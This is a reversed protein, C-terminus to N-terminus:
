SLLPDMWPLLDLMYRHMEETSLKISQGHGTLIHNFDYQALRTMSTIQEPWSYWCARRFAKLRKHQRDWCLHDGTFLIQNYLLVCHGKTHGPVPIIQFDKGISVTEVGKLVHDVEIREVLDDQHLIIEAGFREKYKDADAVDDKHTLFITKVGGMEEMSQVLHKNFRPSDVMWNGDTHKIFYSNAGFSQESNFGLYYVGDAVQLPFMQMAAKLDQKGETGISVTPCALLAQLTRQEQDSNSPQNFVTSYGDQHEFIDPAIQRCTDCDICTSDVYFDGLVNTTLKKKLNAM